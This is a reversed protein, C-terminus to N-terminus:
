LLKWGCVNEAKYVGRKETGSYIVLCSEKTAEDVETVVTLPQPGSVETPCGRTFNISVWYTRPKRDCVLAALEETSPTKASEKVRKGLFWTLFEDITM